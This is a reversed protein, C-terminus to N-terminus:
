GRGAPGTPCSQQGRRREALIALLRALWLHDRYDQSTGAVERAQKLAGEYDGSGTLVDRKAEPTFTFLSQEAELRVMLDNAESYRGKRSLLEVALRVTQPDTEDLGIAQMYKALADNEKHLEQLILGETILPRSWKPRLLRAQALHELAQQLTAKRQEQRGENDPRSDDKMGSGPLALRVATTFHWLPGNGEIEQIAAIAKEMLASDNM